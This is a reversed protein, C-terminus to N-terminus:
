VTATRDDACVQDIMGVDFHDRKGARAFDTQSNPLRGAFGARTLAFELADDALHAPLVRDDDIGVGIEVFGDDVRNVGSETILPLFTGGTRTQDHELFIVIAHHM